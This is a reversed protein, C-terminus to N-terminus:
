QGGFASTVVLAHATLITFISQLGYDRPKMSHHQEDTNLLLRTGFKFDMQAM